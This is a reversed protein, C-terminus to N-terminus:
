ERIKKMYYSGLVEDDDKAVYAYLLSSDLWLKKANEYSLNADFAHTEEAVVIEKFTPWFQKFDSESMQTIIM